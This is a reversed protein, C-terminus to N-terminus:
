KLLRRSFLTELELQACIVKRRLLLIPLHDNHGLRHLVALLLQHTIRLDRSQWRYRLWFNMLKIRTNHEDGNATPSLEFAEVKFVDADLDIQTPANHNIVLEISSDQVDFANAIDNESCHKDVLHLFFADRRCFIHVYSVAMHIILLNWAHYIHM